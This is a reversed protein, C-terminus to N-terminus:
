PADPTWYKLQDCQPERFKYYAVHGDVHNINIGNKHWYVAAPLGPKNASGKYSYIISSANSPMFNFCTSSHRFESIRWRRTPLSLGEPYAIQGNQRYTYYFVRNAGDLNALNQLMPSPDTPCVFFGRKDNEKANVYSYLRLVSHQGYVMFGDYDNTYMTSAAGIEKLRGACVIKKASDRASKLSPLLMAALIAIISIVILLELLTFATRIFPCKAAEYFLRSMHNKM